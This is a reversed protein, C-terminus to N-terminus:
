ERDSSDQSNGSGSTEIVSLPTTIQEKKDGVIFSKADRQGVAKRRYSETPFLEQRHATTADSENFEASMPRDTMLVLLTAVIASRLDM